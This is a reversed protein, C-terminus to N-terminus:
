CGSDAQRGMRGWLRSVRWTFSGGPSAGKRSPVFIVIALLAACLIVVAISGMGDPQQDDKKMSARHHGYAFTLSPLWGDIVNTNWETRFPQSGNAKTPVNKNERGNTLAARAPKGAM